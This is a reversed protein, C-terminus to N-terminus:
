VHGAARVAGGRRGGFVHRGRSRTVRGGGRSYPPVGACGGDSLEDMTQVMVRAGGADRGGRLPQLFRIAGTTGIPFVAMDRGAALVGAALLLFAVPRVM